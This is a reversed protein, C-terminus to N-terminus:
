SWLFFSSFGRRREWYKLAQTLRFGAADNRLIKMKFLLIFIFLFASEELRMHNVTHDVHM